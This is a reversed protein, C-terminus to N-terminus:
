RRRPFSSLPPTAETTSLPCSPISICNEAFGVNGWTRGLTEGRRLGEYMMLAVLVRDSENRHPLLGQVRLWENQSLARGEKKDAGTKTLKGKAPNIVIMSEQITLNIIQRLPIQLKNQTSAPICRSDNPPEQINTTTIENIPKDGFSDYRLQVPIRNIAAGNRFTQRMDDQFKVDPRAETQVAPNVPSAHPSPLHVPPEACIKRKHMNLSFLAFRFLFHSNVTFHM